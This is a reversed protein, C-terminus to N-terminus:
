SADPKDSKGEAQDLRANLEEVIDALQVVADSLKKALTWGDGNGTHGMAEKALKRVNSTDIM